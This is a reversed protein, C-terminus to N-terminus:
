LTCATSVVAAPSVKVPKKKAATASPTGASSARFRALLALEMETVREPAATDMGVSLSTSSASFYDHAWRNRNVPLDSGNKQAGADQEKSAFGLAGEARGYM